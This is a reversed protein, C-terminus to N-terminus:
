ASPRAYRPGDPSWFAPRRRLRGPNYAALFVDISPLGSAGARLMEALPSVREITMGQRVLQTVGSPLNCEGTTCANYLECGLQAAASKGLLPPHQGSYYNVVFTGEENDALSMNQCSPWNSGDTRILYRKGRLEYANESVTVGDIKVSIISQVPYGALKVQSVCGCGCSYSGSSWSAGGWLARSGGSAVYQLWQQGWCGCNDGCPRVTRECLGPYLRASLEYMIQSAAVANATLLDNNDSDLEIGCCNAIDQADIWPTCPGYGDEGPQLASPLITFEGESSAEVAGTGTVSYHFVGIQTQAPLDLVYVGVSPHSVEGDVGFVYTDITLDPNEVRFTITTPDTLVGDVTFTETITVASGVLYVGM